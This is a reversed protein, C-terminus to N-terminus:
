ENTNGEKQYLYCAVCHTDTVQILPPYEDDCKQICKSCRNKFYCTNPLNIPNPVQGPISYLPETTDSNILPKSKQLGITYPHLPHHFIERASGKEIVRGAYMVVVEDAMEAIVGLDHTILMISCGQEKQLQKLLELIQAQITVDLATTPEDAIILKPNGALAMAIMVRQRMGGSLEHPYSKYVHEPMSIGVKNLMEISHAKADEKSINPTHIFSVEDLQYGITFVPNLSTMPEQFIMTIDKGRIKYMEQMPTKSINYALKEGKENRGLEDSNFRIEGDVVQGQPTQVLQMISLSTVSKGCGSEGVVGVIKNKPINFSVGNVSMVTGNDTFFCTKLGEIEILNNEDKMPVTYESIDRKRLREKEYYKMQQINYKIIKRSDKISIYNSPKKDKKM